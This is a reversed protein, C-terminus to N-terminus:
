SKDLDIFELGSDEEEKKEGEPEATQLPLTITPGRKDGSVRQGQGPTGFHNYSDYIDFLKKSGFFFNGEVREKIPYWRKVAVYLNGRTFLGVFFGIYGFRSVKRHVEEYEILCRVQRDLMRDFQAVLIVDYGYHRHQSFFSLWGQRSTNQWERSNFMLQAEDIVLLIEGEKLRRGLHRSLKRSFQLLRDPTLRDNMVFLYNGKCRKIVKTNVYFNGIIVRKHMRLRTRLEKATHLSKGSRPTGSYLEIM